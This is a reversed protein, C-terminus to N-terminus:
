KTTITEILRGYTSRDSWTWTWSPQVCFLFEILHLSTIILLQFYTILLSSSFCRTLLFLATLTSLSSQLTNYIWAANYIMSVHSSNTIFRIWIVVSRFLTTFYGQNTSHCLYYHLFTNDKSCKSSSVTCGIEKHRDEAIYASWYTLGLHIACCAYRM